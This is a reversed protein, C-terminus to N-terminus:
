KYLVWDDVGGNGAFYLANKFVVPKTPASISSGPTIDKVLKTGAATGDTKWLEWDSSAVYADFYANTGLATIWPTFDLLPPTTIKKTGAATGDTVYLFLNDGDSAYFY